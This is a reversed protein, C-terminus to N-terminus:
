RASGGSGRGSRGGRAAEQELGLQELGAPVRLELALDRADDAGAREDGEAAELAQQRHAAQAAVPPLEVLELGLEDSGLRAVRQAEAVTDDHLDLTDVGGAAAHVERGDLHGEARAGSAGATAPDGTTGRVGM